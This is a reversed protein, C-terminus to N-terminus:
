ENKEIVAEPRQAYEAWSGDYLRVKEAGAIELGLAVVAATVGSGCTTTTPEDLKVGKAAFVQKIEEATKLRGDAVLELFPVSTAGPM